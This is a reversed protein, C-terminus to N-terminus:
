PAPPISFIGLPGDLESPDLRVRTATWNKPALEIYRDAPWYPLLRLVEDLYKWPELKHLRCSALISFIAAAAQAHVDSGYFMWGKRGVVITRLARESRTNVLVVSQM